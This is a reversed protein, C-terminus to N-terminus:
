LVAHLVSLLAKANACTESDYAAVPMDATQHEQLESHIICRKQSCERTGARGQGARGTRGQGAVGRWAGNQGTMDQGARGQGAGGWGARGQGVGGWEVGISGQM